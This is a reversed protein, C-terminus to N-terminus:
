YFRGEKPTEGITLQAAGGRARREYYAMGYDSPIGNEDANQPLFPAMIIRNRFRHGRITYSEFLHPYFPNM